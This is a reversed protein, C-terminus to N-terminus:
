TGSGHRQKSRAGLVTEPSAFSVPHIAVEVPKAAHPVEVGRRV